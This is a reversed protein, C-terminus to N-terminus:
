DKATEPRVQVSAEQPIPKGYSENGNGYAEEILALDEDASHLKGSFLRQWDVRATYQMSVFLTAISLCTIILGTFQELFFTYSFLILYIFQAFGLQKVFRKDSIIRSAYTMVLLVSVLSCIFFVYELALHDVLYALLLHFSFFSAGMFFYHMPHLKIGRITSILWSVYFFFFLSVPAFFTVDSVLRGPNILQPMSMGIETGTMTNAYNWCLKWGNELKGKEKSTPSRTGSPFDIQEFDTQMQLQFNKVLSLGDGPSYRWSSVGFSDYSLSVTEKRHAPLLFSTKVMGSDTGLDDKVQSGIRLKLNDYVCTKDPLEFCMSIRKDSEGANEIEYVGSFAVKYTPYWILGKRRQELHLGVNIRSADAPCPAPKGLSKGDSDIEVASFCAAKQKQASGWLGSVERSLLMDQESSRTLVTCGLVTWSMCVCLYIFTLAAIHKAM